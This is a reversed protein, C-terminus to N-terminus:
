EVIIKNQIAFTTTINFYKYHGWGALLQSNSNKFTLDSIRFNIKDEFVSGLANSHVLYHETNELNM